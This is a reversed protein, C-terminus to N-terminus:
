RGTDSARQSEHWAKLLEKEREPQMGYARWKYTDDRVEHFWDATERITEAIPRFRMGAEIGKKNDFYTAYDDPLWFPMESFPRVRQELLWKEEVWTFSSESGMVAKCGHLLEQMTVRGKFGNANYIGALGKEAFDLSFIGLDRVDTFQIPLSPNGPALIEGGQGVRIVWYPLRDSPDERGAIVGPRLSTVRGPMALELEDECRAKLPGYLRGGGVRYADGIVKVEAEEEATVKGVASEENVPSENAQDYVSLTSIIVYHDVSDRLLQGMAAVHAPLYASTDVVYDWTGGKLSELDGTDRDGRLKELEPYLHP